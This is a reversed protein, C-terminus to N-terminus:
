VSILKFAGDAPEIVASVTIAKNGVNKIEVSATTTQCLIAQNELSLVSIDDPFSKGQVSVSLEGARGSLVEEESCSSSLFGVCLFFGLFLNRYFNLRNVKM